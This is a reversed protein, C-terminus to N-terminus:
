GSQGKYEGNDRYSRKVELHILPHWTDEIVWSDTAEQHISASIKLSVPLIPSQYVM